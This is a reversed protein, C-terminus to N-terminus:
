SPSGTKRADNLVSEITAAIEYLRSDMGNPGSVMFGVPAEGVDHCPLSISCGDFCNATSTNRLCRLNIEAIRSTDDTDSIPPPVCAVTPYIVVDASTDSFQQNFDTVIQHKEDYRDQQLQDNLASGNMIRQRVFPDYLDGHSQLWEQHLLWAEYLAIARSSFMDICRDLVPMKERIVSFGAEKMWDVSREFRREVDSDLDNLVISEPLLLRIDAPEHKAISPLQSVRTANKISPSTMVHDLLFCSDLDVGLPGPVDSTKSLPFVGNLSLRGYSPKVGVIGNFAAPIRCSGATDSGMTASVIGEAVSVASGSSSGGPLRGTNRDWVSQCNGYHPNLGMGSFAFESMNTRGLFLLGAERLDRVVDCDQAALTATHQLVKSGALTKQKKVDFLDKLTIPVGALPSMSKGDQRNADVVRASERVSEDISVFVNSSKVAKGLCEDVHSEASIEACELHKALTRVPLPAPKRNIINPTNM